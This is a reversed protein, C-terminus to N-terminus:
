AERLGAHAAATLQELQKMWAAFQDAARTRFAREMTAALNSLDPYGYSGGAGKLQHALTVLRNWDSQEFAERFQAIRNDLRDVFEGVIDRLDPEDVLLDSVLKGPTTPQTPASM